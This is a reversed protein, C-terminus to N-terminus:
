FSFYSLTSRGLLSLGGRRRSKRGLSADKEKQNKGEEFSAETKRKESQKILNADTMQFYNQTFKGCTLKMLELPRKLAKSGDNFISTAIGEGIEVTKLGHYKNKPCIQWIINNISENANQTYGDLNKKFPALQYEIGAAKRMSEHQALSVAKSITENIHQNSGKQVPPPLHIMCCFTQM